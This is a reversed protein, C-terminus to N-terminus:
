LLGIASARSDSKALTATGRNKPPIAADAKTTITLTIRYTRSTVVLSTSFTVSRLQNRGSGSANVGANAAEYVEANSPVKWSTEDVRRRNVM